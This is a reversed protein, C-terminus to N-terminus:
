APAPPGTHSDGPAVLREYLRAARQQAEPEPLALLAAEDPAEDRAAPAGAVPVARRGILSRLVAAALGRANREARSPVIDREFPPATALIREVDVRDIAPVTGIDLGDGYRELRVGRDSFRDCAWQLYRAAHFYTPNTFVVRGAHDRTRFQHGYRPDPEPTSLDLGALIIRRAGMGVALHLTSESVTIMPEDIVRGGLARWLLGDAHPSRLHFLHTRSPAFGLIAPHTATDALLADFPEGIGELYSSYDKPDSITAFDVRAGAARLRRLSQLPAMLVGGSRRALPECLGNLSPGAAALVVTQGELAGDLADCRGLKSIQEIASLARESIVAREPTPASEAGLKRRLLWALFRVEFRCLEAHGPHVVIHPRLARANPFGDLAAEMQRADEVWRIHDPLSERSLGLARSVGPFPDWYIAPGSHREALASALHFAGVGLLILLRQGDELQRVIRGALGAAERQPDYESNVQAMGIRLTPAGARSRDARYEIEAIGERGEEIM